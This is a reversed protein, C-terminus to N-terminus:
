LPPQQWDLPIWGPELDTEQCRLQLVLDLDQWPLVPCACRRWWIQGCGTTAMMFEHSSLIRNAAADSMM